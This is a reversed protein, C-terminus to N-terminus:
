RDHLVKGQISEIGEIGATLLEGMQENLREYFRSIHLGDVLAHHCLVSVPM